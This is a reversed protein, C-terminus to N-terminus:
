RTKRGSQKVSLLYRTNSQIWHEPTKVESLTQLKDKAGLQNKQSVQKGQGLKGMGLCEGM